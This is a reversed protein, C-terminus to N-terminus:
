NCFVIQYVLFDNSPHKPELINPIHYDSLVSLFGIFLDLFVHRVALIEVEDEHVDLHRVKVPKLTSAQNPLHAIGGGDDRQCRKRLFAVNLITIIRSHVVKKLLGILRGARLCTRCFNAVMGSSVSPEETVPVLVVGSGSVEATVVDSCVVGRGLPELGGYSVGKIYV